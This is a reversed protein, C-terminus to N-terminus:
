AEKRCPIQANGPCPPRQKLEKGSRHYRNDQKRFPQLPNGAARRKRIHQLSRSGHKQPLLHSDPQRMNEQQLNEPNQEKKGQVTHGITQHASIHRYRSSSRHNSNKQRQLRLIDLRFHLIRGIEPHHKKGSYKGTHHTHRSRENDVTIKGIDRSPFFILDIQDQREKENRFSQAADQKLPYPMYRLHNEAPPKITNKRPRNRRQILNKGISDPQLSDAYKQYPRDTQWDEQSSQSYPIKRSRNHAQKQSQASHQQTHGEVQKAITRHEPEVRSSTSRNRIRQRLDSLIGSVRQFDIRPNHPKQQQNNHRVTKDTHHRHLNQPAAQRPRPAKANRAGAKPEKQQRPGDKVSPDPM